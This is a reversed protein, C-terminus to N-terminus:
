IHLVTPYVHLTCNQYVPVYIHLTAPMHTWPCIGIRHFTHVATNRTANNIATLEYYTYTSVYNDSIHMHIYNAYTADRQCKLPMNTTPVSIGTAHYILTATQQKKGWIYLFTPDIYPRYIYHQWILITMNM